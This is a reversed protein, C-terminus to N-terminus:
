GNIFMQSRSSFASYEVPQICLRGNRHAPKPEYLSIGLAQFRNVDVVSLTKFAIPNTAYQNIKM